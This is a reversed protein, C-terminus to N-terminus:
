EQMYEKKIGLRKMKSNLTTSPIKLADAAGGPGAVKGKCAKLVQIIHEREVDDITRFDGTSFYSELGDKEPSPIQLQTILQQSTLLISREILHELERVNGPWNYAALAKIVKASFGVVKKGAKKSHKVLFHAALLPIDERRERLPPIFVPFVNLRYFLDSRFNGLSVEKELDRNTAAIIRVDTKIVTRGGVREIEKEQLARLLKVQLELPMEGIEDLFLTSNNALEFKGIRKDTAGTFSGKEHGFLESEILNAPLTACNVKVMLKGKRPSSNHIARAILEKGTGTEGLILVSSTTPAVSTVLRFVDRLATSNGVIESYNSTTQIEEQLYLNEVELQKKFNSIELVQQEIKENALINAVATALQSSIGHLLNLHEVKITNPDETFIGLMGTRRQGNSLGVLVMEKIGSSYSMKVHGPLDNRNIIDTLNYIVPRGTDFATSFFGDNVPIKSAAFDQYDPHIKNKSKPDLILSELSNGDDTVKALMFHSYNFLSRLRQDLVKYLEATTRVGALDNSMSLLVSKEHDRQIIKEDAVINAVANSMQYSLGRILELQQANFSNKLDSFLFLFGILNNGSHLQAIVVERMGCDYNMHLYAPCDKLLILNALDFVKPADSILVRQILTDDMPYENEAISIYDPHETCKSNPDFIYGTYVNKGEDILAITGHDFYFISKLRKHLVKLLDNKVRISALDNSINLLIGKEEEKSLLEEYALINSITIALQNAVGQILDFQKPHYTNYHESFIYLGGFIGDKNYMSTGVFEVIGTKNYFDIYRSPNPSNALEEVRFIVPKNNALTQEVVSDNIPSHVKSAERFEPHESRRKEASLLYGFHTKNQFDYLTVSIDNFPILKRITGKVIELLQKQDRISAIEGSLALLASKESEKEKLNESLQMSTIALSLRGAMTRLIRIQHSSFPVSSETALYIGGFSSKGDKLPVALFQKIGTNQFLDCVHNALGIDALVDCEFTVPNTQSSMINIMRNAQTFVASGFDDYFPHQRRKEELQSDLLHYSKKDLSICTIWIDEFPVLFKLREYITPLLTSKDKVGNIDDLLTLLIEKEYDLRRNDDKLSLIRLCNSFAPGLEIIENGKELFSTPNEAFFLLVEALEGEDFLPFVAIETGPINLLVRSLTSFELSQKLDERSLVLPGDDVAFSRLFPDGIPLNIQIEQLTEDALYTDFFNGLSNKKLLIYASYVLLEQLVGDLFAKFDKKSKVELIYPVALNLLNRLNSGSIKSAPKTDGYELNKM